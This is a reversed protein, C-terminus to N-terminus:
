ENIQGKHLDTLGFYQVAIFVWNFMPMYLTYLFSFRDSSKGPTLISIVLFIMVEVLCLIAINVFLRWRYGKSLAWSSTFSEKINKDELIIMQKYFMSAISFMIGPVILLFSFMIALTAFCIDSIILPFFKQVTLKFKNKHKTGNILESIKLYIPIQLFGSLILNLCIFMFSNWGVTSYDSLHSLISQPILLILFLAILNFNSLLNKTERITYRFSLVDSATLEEVFDPDYVKEEEWSGAMNTESNTETEYEKELVSIRARILDYREPYKESNLLRLIGKLRAISSNNIEKAYNPDILKVEFIIM